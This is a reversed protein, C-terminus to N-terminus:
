KGSPIEDYYEIAKDGTFDQWSKEYFTIVKPIGRFYNYVVFQGLKKDYKCYATRQEETKSIYGFINKNDIAKVMLSDALEEYDRMSIKGDFQRDTIVHKNYHVELNYPSTFEEAIPLKIIKVKM